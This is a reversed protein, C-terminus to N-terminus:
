TTHDLLATPRQPVPSSFAGTPSCAMSKILLLARLGAHTTREWPTRPPWGNLDRVGVICCVSDAIDADSLHGTDSASVLEAFEPQELIRLRDGRSGRRPYDPDEVRRLQWGSNIAVGLEASKRAFFAAQRPGQDGANAKVRAEEKREATGAATSSTASWFWKDRSRRAKFDVTKTGQRASIEGGKFAPTRNAEKQADPYLTKPM